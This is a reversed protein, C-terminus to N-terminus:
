KIRRFPYKGKIYQNFFIGKSASKKIFQYVLIPVDKYDYINGSVFTIRLTSSSADYTISSIVSSPM